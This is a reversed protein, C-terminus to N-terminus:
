EEFVFHAVRKARTLRAESGVIRYTEGPYTYFEAVAGSALADNQYKKFRDEEHEESGADLFIRPRAQFRPSKSFDPLENPNLFIAGKWLAPSKELVWSMHATEQSQGFLYVRKSDFSPDHALNKYLAVVNTEWKDLQTGWDPREVVAVCAGCAALGTMFTEGHSPDNIFTDGIVFPYKKHADFNAPRYITCTINGGPLSMPEHVVTIAGTNTSPYDSVSIVQRWTDSALDCRWIGPAPANSITGFLFLQKQDSTVRFWDFTGNDWLQLLQKKENGAFDALRLWSRTDLQSAYVFQNPGALQVDRVTKGKMIQTATAGPGDATNLRWVSTQGNETGSILMEGTEKSYTFGTMRELGPEFLVLASQSSLPTKGFWKGGLYDEVRRREAPNLARDYVLLEAFDGEATKPNKGDTATRYGIEVEKAATDLKSNAVGRLMGNVYGRQTLGDYTVELLNWNTSTMTVQNDKYWGGPLYFRDREGEVAFLAGNTRTDGMSVMMASNAEHRMVVFVSRSAAGTIGFRARTKLGTGNTTAGVWGFHITGLGNLARASNTGNFVPARENRVADNRSRSLDALSTVSAQNTLQLMSADLWLALGNTPPTTTAPMKGPLQNSSDAPLIGAGSDSKSVNAGCIATNNELWAVTDSGMATLSSIPMDRSLILNRKWQGDERKQGAYLNKGDTVYAFLTPTLWVAESYPKDEIIVTKQNPDAACVMLRNSACCLFYRDDPSWPGAQLNFDDKWYGTGDKDTLILRRKGTLTDCLFLAHGRDDANAAYIFQSGDHNLQAPGYFNRIAGYATANAELHAPRQVHLWLLRLGVLALALGALGAMTLWSTTGRRLRSRFQALRESM